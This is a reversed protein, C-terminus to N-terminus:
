YIINLFTLNGKFATDELPLDTETVIKAVEKTYLQELPEDSTRAHKKMALKLKLDALEKKALADHNAHAVYHVVTEDVKQITLSAPCAFKTREKCMWNISTKNVRNRKWLYNEAIIELGKREVNTDLDGYEPKHTNNEYYEFSIRTYYDTM